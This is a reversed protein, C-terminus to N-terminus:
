YPLLLMYRPLMGMVVNLVLGMVILTILVCDHPPHGEPSTHGSEFPAHGEPYWSSGFLM